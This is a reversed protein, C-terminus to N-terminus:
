RGARLDETLDAISDLIRDPRVGSKELKDARFKGTRVLWGKLGAHQAGQVDSWLDDGIMAAGSAAQGMSALAAHYFKANPKGALEAHAGAAYEIAAVYPGADMELGTAGLWYPDRQLAVLAAGDLVARFAENLLAPTWLAGLDGVVVADPRRGTTAGSTGGTFAFGTLDELAHQTVFPMITTFGRETLLAAGARTANFVDEPEAPVGLGRLREVLVRRSRGTSNSVFRFRIGRRRLAGLADLAGPVLGASTYVTGDLDILLATLDTLLAVRDAFRAPEV